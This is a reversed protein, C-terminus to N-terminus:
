KNTNEGNGASGACPVLSILLEGEAPQRFGTKTYIFLERAKTIIFLPIAADGYLELYKEYNFDKTILTKKVVGGRSFIEELAYYYARTGFLLNSLLAAKEIKEPKQAEVRSYFRYTNKLGIAKGFKDRAMMNVEDNPTMALMKGFEEISVTDAINEALASGYYAEFGEVKAATINANNSDVLAVKIKEEALAKAIRRIWGCAGVILVGQPNIRAIGLRRGLPVAAFGYFIITGIIVIFTMYVLGGPDLGAETMRMEFVSAVAAAVIGRPAMFAIMTKEKVSMKSFLTSIFVSVPRVFFILLILFLLAPLGAYELAEAPIRAALVIFLVSIILVRLNEKFEVIPKIDIIRQSALIIGMVTAALLGAENQFTNAAIYAMVVAMLSVPNQLYDPVLNKKIVFILFFAAATGAVAGSLATKLVVLAITDGVGKIGYALIAEFVLVALSAGVPDIVIGEWKLIKGSRGSPKLQKLLPIIVTPGTVVLIAGFLVATKFSFGLIYFALLASLVWTIAAGITVLSFLSRGINKLERINLSLGGEYLILAVSISALPLLIEGFLGDPNVLGTVPGLLFGAIILFVISPQKLRWAAWQATIGAILIAGLQLM